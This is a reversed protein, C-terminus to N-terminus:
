CRPAEPQDPAGGPEPDRDGNSAGQGPDDAGPRRTGAAPQEPEGLARDYADAPSRGGQEFWRFAERVDGEDVQLFAVGDMVETRGPISHGQVPLRLSERHDRALQRIRTLTLGDDLEVARAVATATRYLRPLDRLLGLELIETRLEEVFRQQREIRGFDSDISRARVFALAEAGDLRTCGAPLDLNAREDAIPEDLTMPVGGVADVIDVFGRFDAKVAHDIAIGGWESITQVVCSMAGTGERNGVHYAANVRGRSGDCRTLLTDRPVSLMRLRDAGPDLRLLAITETREGWADGTGLERREEESLTERTDSGLVLVTLPDPTSGTAADAPDDGDADEDGAGGPREGLGTVGVRDVSRDVAIIAGAIAILGVAALGILAMALRRGRDAPQAVV